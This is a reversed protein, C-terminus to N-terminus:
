LPQQKYTKTTNAPTLPHNGNDFLYLLLANCSIARSVTHVLHAFVEAPKLTSGVTSIDENLLINEQTRAQLAKQLEANEQRIQEIDISQGATNSQEATNGTNSKSSVLKSSMGAEQDLQNSFSEM